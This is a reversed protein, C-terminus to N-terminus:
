EGAIYNIYLIRSEENYHDILVSEDKKPSGIRHNEMKLISHTEVIDMVIDMFYSFALTWKM